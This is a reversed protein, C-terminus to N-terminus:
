PRYVLGHPTPSPMADADTLPAANGLHDALRSGHLVAQRPAALGLDDIIGRVPLEARSGVVLINGFRRGLLITPFGVMLQYPTAAAITAAVRRSYAADLGDAIDLILVGDPRLVRLVDAVFEATTLEPPVRGEAFADVIVVDATGDGQRCLGTRGDYPEIAVDSGAPLPLRELVAETLETDPELVIQPSGPRAAQVYRPLTCAGGGIHVVALPGPRLRALVVGIARAYDFVLHTPDDLDVYSQRLGASLVQWGGPRDPDPRFDIDPRESPV